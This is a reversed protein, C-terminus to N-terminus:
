PFHEVDEPPPDDPELLDGSGKRLLDVFGPPWEPATAELILSSVWASLSRNQAAAQKRAADIADAKLYITVPPM